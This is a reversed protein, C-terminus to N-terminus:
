VSVGVANVGTLPQYPLTPNRTKLWVSVLVNTADIRRNMTGGIALM